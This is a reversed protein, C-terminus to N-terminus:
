LSQVDSSDQEETKIRQYEHINWTRAEIFQHTPGFLGESTQVTINHNQQKPAIPLIQGTSDALVNGVVPLYDHSTANALLGLSDPLVGGVIPLYAHSTANALSSTSDPLVGGVITLYDYFVAKLM